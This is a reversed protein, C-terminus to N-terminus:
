GCGALRSVSETIGQVHGDETSLISSPGTGEIAPAPSQKRVAPGRPQFYTLLNPMPGQLTLVGVTAYESVDSLCVKM